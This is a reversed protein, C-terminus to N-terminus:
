MVVNNEILNGNLYSMANEFTTISISELAENTLFGQHSTVIVNPFSLLRATISTELIDDERNEFVNNTEEEYVDLGVSFFKKDRIGHILDEKKILAGRSTNVLIVGDKMKAISSKNIMHYSEETLPCHLSILDSDNLLKDLEVYEVFDLEPNKYLDYAIVEMGFGRCIRCMTAGIKGTGIIGAIKGHLNTGTLGTLSFNNERVKIYSKHIRRSSALALAMAHEAVAEPSYGPVRMVTINKKKAEELDVNNFGACRLLVLEVGNKSLCDITEKGVDSSVFACIAKYGKALNATKSNIDTDTYEIEIEPYKETVKEFSDRDYKKTDYFLIRM